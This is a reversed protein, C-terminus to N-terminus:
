NILELQIEALDQRTYPAVAVRALKNFAALYADRDIGAAVHSGLAAQRISVAQADNTVTFDVPNESVIDGDEDFRTGNVVDYPHTMHPAFAITKLEQSISPDDYLLVVDDNQLTGTESSRGLRRQGRSAFEMPSNRSASVRSRSTEVWYGSMCVFEANWLPADIVNDDLTSYWEIRPWGINMGLSSVLNRADHDLVPTDHSRVASVPMAPAHPTLIGGHSARSWENVGAISPMQDSDDTSGDDVTYAFFFGQGSADIPLVKPNESTQNARSFQYGNLDLSYSIKYGNPVIPQFPSIGNLTRPLRLLVGRLPFSVSGEYRLIFHTNSTLSVGARRDSLDFVIVTRTEGNIERTQTQTSTVVIDNRRLNRVVTNSGHPDNLPFDVDGTRRGRNRQRDIEISGLRRTRILGQNELSIPSQVPIEEPAEPSSSKISRIEEIQVRDGALVFAHDDRPHAFGGDIELNGSGNSRVTDIESTYGTFRVIWLTAGRTTVITDTHSVICNSWSDNNALRGVSRIEVPDLDNIAIDQGSTPTSALEIDPNVLMDGPFVLGAGDIGLNEVFQLNDTKEDHRAVTVSRIFKYRPTHRTGSVTVPSRHQDYHVADLTLQNQSYNSRHQYKVVQVFFVSESAIKSNERSSDASEVVQVTRGQMTNEYTTRETDNSQLYDIKHLTNSAGSTMRWTEGQDIATQDHDFAPDPTLVPPDPWYGSFGSIQEIYHQNLQVIDVTLGEGRTTDPYVPHSAPYRDWPKHDSIYVRETYEQIDSEDSLVAVEYSNSSFPLQDYTTKALRTTIKHHRYWGTAASAIATLEQVAQLNEADETTNGTKFPVLRLGLEYRPRGYPVRRDNFDEVFWVSPDVQGNGDLDDNWLPGTRRTQYRGTRTPVVRLVCSRIQFTTDTDRGFPGGIPVAYRVLLEDGFEYEYPQNQILQLPYEGWTASDQADPWKTKVDDVAQDFSKFRGPRARYIKASTFEALDNDVTIADGAELGVVTLRFVNPQGSDPEGPLGGVYLVDDVQMDHSASVNVVPDGSTTDATIGQIESYWEQPDMSYASGVAICNMNRGYLAYAQNTINYRVPRTSRTTDTDVRNSVGDLTTDLATTRDGGRHRIRTGQFNLTRANWSRYTQNHIGDRTLGSGTDHLAIMASLIAAHIRQAVITDQSMQAAEVLRSFNINLPEASEHFGMLLKRSDLTIGVERELLTPFDIELGHNLLM